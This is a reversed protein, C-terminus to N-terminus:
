WQRKATSSCTTSISLIVVLAKCDVLVDSVVSLFDSTLNMHKAAHSALVVHAGAEARQGM